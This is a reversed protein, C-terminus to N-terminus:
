ELRELNVQPRNGQIQVYIQIMGWILLFAVVTVVVGVAYDAGKNKLRQTFSQRQLAERDQQERIWAEHNDLQRELKAMREGFRQLDGKTAVDDLKADLRQELGGLRKDMDTIKASLIALLQNTDLGEFELNGSADLRTKADGM